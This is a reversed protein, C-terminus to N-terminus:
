LKLSEPWTKVCQLLEPCQISHLGVVGEQQKASRLGHRPERRRLVLSKRPQQAQPRGVVVVAAVADALGEVVQSVLLAPLQRLPQVGVPERLRAVHQAVRRGHQLIGLDVPCHAEGRGQPHQDLHLALQGRMGGRAVGGGIDHDLQAVEGVPGPVGPRVGVEQLGEQGQPTLALALRISHRHVDLRRPGPLHLRLRRPVHLDRLDNGCLHRLNALRRRRLRHRVPPGPDGPCREHQEEQDQRRGEQRQRDGGTGHTQGASTGVVARRHKGKARQQGDGDYRQPPQNIDGLVDKLPTHWGVDALFSSVHHHEVDEAHGWPVLVRAQALFVFLNLGPERASTALTRLCHGPLPRSKGHATPSAM